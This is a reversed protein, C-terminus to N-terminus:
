EFHEKLIDYSTVLEALNIGSMLAENFAEEASIDGNYVKHALFQVTVDAPSDSMPAQLVATAMEPDYSVNSEHIEASVDALVVPNIEDDRIVDDVHYIRKHEEDTLEVGESPDYTPDLLKPQEQKAFATLHTETVMGTGEIPEGTAEDIMDPLYTFAPRDNEFNITM